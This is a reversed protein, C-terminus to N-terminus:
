ETSKRGSAKGKESETPPDPVERIHGERLYNQKTFPKWSEVEGAPIPDGHYLTVDGVKMKTQAIFM